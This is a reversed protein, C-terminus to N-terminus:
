LRNVTEIGAALNSEVALGRQIQKFSERLGVGKKTTKYITNSEQRIDILGNKALLDIYPRVTKFNMNARYVICTKSAGEMCIDLIQSIIVDRSRKVTREEM